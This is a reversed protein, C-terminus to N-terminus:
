EKVIECVYVIYSSLLGGCERKSKDGGKGRGEEEEEKWVSELKTNGSHTHSSSWGGACRCDVLLWRRLSFHCWCGIAGGCPHPRMLGEGMWAPVNVAEMNAPRTCTVVATSLECCLLWTVDPLRCEETKGLSWGAEEEGSDRLGQCSPTLLSPGKTLEWCGKKEARLECTVLRQTLWQESCVWGGRVLTSLLMLWDVFVFTQFATQCCKWGFLLLKGLLAESRGRWPSKVLILSDPM